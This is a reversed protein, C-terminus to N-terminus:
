AFVSQPATPLTDAAADGPIQFYADVMDIQSGDAKNAAGHEILVNGYQYVAREEYATNLSMVGQSELSMLEGKDTAHNANADQWLVLGGTLIEQKGILGDGDTDYTALKAFGEGVEGGFLESIDDIVGNGNSDVALFADESSLWGSEIPTGNGLLDFKGETAGMATTQVGDGNLDLAIPSFFDYHTKDKIDVTLHGDKLCDADGSVLEVSFSETGEYYGFRNPADNDVTVRELWTQVHFSESVMEGAAVKITIYGDQDKAGSQDYITYDWSADGPGVAVRDDSTDGARGQAIFGYTTKIVHGRSNRTDYYGGWMIDQHGAQHDTTAKASGDNVKITFYRDQHSVHDLEVRYQGEDGEHITSTGVLKACVEKPAEPNTYGSMDSDNAGGAEVTVTNKYEGINTEGPVTIDLKKLKFADYSHGERASIVLTDGTLEDANFDAWRDHRGGHNNEKTLGDLIGRSLETIDGDRDGIWVSVDSDGSVYDLFARDVTVDQDFEFLVYDVSGRNDIRHSSGREFKNTVGLGGGYAGLYAKDFHGNKQSFASVDVSVGESIFSRINGMRGTTSSRGTLHFSVDNAPTATTLNEAAFTESTYLWTEGASLIGDSGVDSSEVLTPRFDDSSDGPTGHDDNVMVEAQTFAVNGTNTVNYTFTVDDGAAIEPLNSSDTVDVDIGNVFKEIDIGPNAEQYGFDQELNEGGAPFNTVMSMGDLEADPDGTQVFDGPLTDEHVMVTYDSPTVGEFLYNGDGATVETDVVTNTAKDILKVTVGNIGAEGDDQIGDGDNDFWVRDGITGLQQYGFDQELNEGGAPFDTVRSMGDLEADPDGTQVFDGAPLTDEHVMVTYDGPTVDEFLYN